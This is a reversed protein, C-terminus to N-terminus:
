YEDFEALVKNTDAYNKIVVHGLLKDSKAMDDIIAQADKIWSPPPPPQKAQKGKQGSGPQRQAVLLQAIRERAVGAVTRPDSVATAVARNGATRQLNLVSLSVPDLDDRRRVSGGPGAEAISELEAITRRRSM